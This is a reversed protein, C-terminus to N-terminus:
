TCIKVLNYINVIAKVFIDLKTKAYYYPMSLLRYSKLRAFVHEISIRKSSLAKNLGTAKVKDTKFRQENRKFPTKVHYKSLGVYAKDGLVTLKRNLQKFVNQYELEFIKKDHISSEIGPSISVIEKKDNM